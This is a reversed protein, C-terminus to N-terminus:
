KCDERKRRNRGGRSLIVRYNFANPQISVRGSREEASLLLASTTSATASSAGKRSPTCRSPPATCPIVNSEVAQPGPPPVNMARTREASRRVESCTSNVHKDYCTELDKLGRAFIERYMSGAESGPVM